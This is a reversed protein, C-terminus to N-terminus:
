PHTAYLLPPHLIGAAHPSLIYVGVGMGQLMGKPWFCPFPPPHTYLKERSKKQKSPSALPACLRAHAAFAGAVSIAHCGYGGCSLPSDGDGGPWGGASGERLQVVTKVARRCLMRRSSNENQSRPNTMSKQTFNRHTSKKPGETGQFSPCFIWLSIWLLICSLIAACDGHM